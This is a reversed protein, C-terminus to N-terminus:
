PSFWAEGSCNRLSIQSATKRAVTRLKAWIFSKEIGIISQKNIIEMLLLLIGNDPHVVTQKGMWGNFSIKNAESNKCNHIFRSYVNTHLNQTSLYFNEVRARKENFCVECHYNQVPPGLASCLVPVLPPMPVLEKPADEKGLLYM